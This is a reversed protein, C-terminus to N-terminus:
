NPPPPPPPPLDAPPTLDFREFGTEPDVSRYKESIRQSNLSGGARM